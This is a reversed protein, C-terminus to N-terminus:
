LESLTSLVRPRITSVLGNLANGLWAQVEERNAGLLEPGFPKWIAISSWKDTQKWVAPIGLKADIESRQSELTSYIRDGAANRKFTVYVGAKQSGPAAVACFWGSAAQPLYFFQNTGNSPQRTEQTRDDLHYKSLFERWFRNFLSRQEELNPDADTSEGDGMRDETVTGQVLDIVTRGIITSQALIRPQILWGSDPTKFVAVEVLGFTFHLTGASQIFSAIEAANERIGDGAIMLLLEGRRLNRTINDVFRAADIEPAVPRVIDMLGKGTQAGHRTAARVASDLSAYDWKSLEKAYELIQGIVERRAEPNRWLKAEL